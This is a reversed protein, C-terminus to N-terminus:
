SGLNTHAEMSSEGKGVPANRRWKSMRTRLQLTGLPRRSELVEDALAHPLVWVLARGSLLQQLVGKDGLM